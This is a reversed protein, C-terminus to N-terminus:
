KDKLDKEHVWQGEAGPVDGGAFVRGGHIARAAGVMKDRREIEFDSLMTGSIQKLKDTFSGYPELGHETTQVMEGCLQEVEVGLAIQEQPTIWREPKCGHMCSMGRTAGWIRCILPRIAYATCRKESSLYICSRDPLHRPKKHTSLRLREAEIFTLPIPGCAVFCKGKCVIKPLRNYIAELRAILEPRLVRNRKGM